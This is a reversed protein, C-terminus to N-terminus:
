LLASFLREITKHWKDNSFSKFLEAKLLKEARLSLRHFLDGSTHRNTDFIQGLM